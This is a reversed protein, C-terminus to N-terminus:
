KKKLFPPISYHGLNKYTRYGASCTRSTCFFNDLCTILMLIAIIMLFWEKKLGFIISFISAIIGIIGYLLTSILYFYKNM